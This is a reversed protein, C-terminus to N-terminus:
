KGKIRVVRTQADLKIYEVETGPQLSDGGIDSPVNTEITEYSQLDMIQVTEGMNAVVQANGTYIKPRKVDDGTGALLNLKKDTFLAIGVIRAKAAGHKGPKSKEISVIKCPIEEILIINGVKLSNVTDYDFEMNVM